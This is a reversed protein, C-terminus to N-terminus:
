LLYVLKMWLLFAVFLFGLFTTFEGNKRVQGWTFSSDGFNPLTKRAPWFRPIRECYAEYDGPFFAKLKEEEARAKDGLVKWFFFWAIWLLLSTFWYKPSTSAIVAGLAMFSSGGYLPHRIYAYPGAQVLAQNKTLCGASWVRIGEGLLAIVLGLFFLIPHRPHALALLLLGLLFSIRVRHRVWIPLLM